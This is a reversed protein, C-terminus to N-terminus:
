RIGDPIKVRVDHGLKIAARAFIIAVKTHRPKYKRLYSVTERIEKRKLRYAKKIREVREPTLRVNRLGYYSCGCVDVLLHEYKYRLRIKQM